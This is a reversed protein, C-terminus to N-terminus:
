RGRCPARGDAREPERRLSAEWESRRQRILHSQRILHNRRKASASKAGPSRARPSSTRKRASTRPKKLIDGGKRAATQVAEKATEFLLTFNEDYDNLGDLCPLVPDSRWLKRLAQNRLVEPVGERLFTTYDSDKDLSEIDPLDLDAAPAGPIVAVVHWSLRQWPHDVERRELVIGVPLSDHVM